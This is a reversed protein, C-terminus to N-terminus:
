KKLVGDLFEWLTQTPKDDALGLGSNITGHTKGEAPVVRAPVGVENLKAAFWESQPKTSKSDAVYLILFPPIYKHKTIYTVPSLERHLEDSESFVQKFKSSPETGRDKLHKPIDYAAVDVPVCARINGLSLGEGKLYRDAM